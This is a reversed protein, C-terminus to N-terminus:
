MFLCFSKKLKTSLRPDHISPTPPDLPNELYGKTYVCKKVFEPGYAPPHTPHKRVGEGGGYFVYFGGFGRAGGKRWIRSGGSINCGRTPPVTVTRICQVYQTGLSSIYARYIRRRSCACKDLCSLPTSETLIVNYFLAPTINQSPPTSVSVSAYLHKFSTYIKPPIGPTDWLRKHINLPHYIRPPFPLNHSHRMYHHFLPTYEPPLTLNQFPRMDLPPPPPTM